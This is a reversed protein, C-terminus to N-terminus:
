WRTWGDGDAGPAGFSGGSYDRVTVEDAADPEAGMTAQLPVGARSHTMGSAPNLGYRLADAAHDEQGDEIDEPDDPDATLRPLTRQLHPAAGELFILGPLGDDQEELWELVRRWGHVRENNAKQVPLGQQQYVTADSIGINSRPAFMSPDVRISDLHLVASAPATVRRRVSAMPDDFWELWRGGVAAVKRKINQAQRLPTVGPRYDEAWVFVHKHAPDRAFWLCCWPDRVGGDVGCWLTWGRGGAETPLPPFAGQELKYRQALAEVPWVHYPAGAKSPQFARFFRGGLTEPPRQQYLAEWWQERVTTRIIALRDEDFRAPWLARGPPRQLADERGTEALAPLDVVEWPEGGEEAQQLLRGALDDEHWRTMILVIANAQKDLRTYATSAYWEYTDDRVTLSLAEKADKVPDDVILLDCGEGTIGGGVGAANFAGAEEGRHLWAWFAVAAADGTLEIGPYLRQYLPSKVLNRVRRSFKYALVAGYSALIVKRRPDRGLFWAPFRVSALESKGHRPPVFLMLRRLDGREVAELKEIILRQHPAVQYNPYTRETFGLLDLGGGAHGEGLATAEPTPTQEEPPMGPPFRPLSAV